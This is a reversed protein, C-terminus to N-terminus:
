HWLNGKLVIQQISSNISGPPDLYEPYFYLFCTSFVFNIPGEGRCWGDSNGAGAQWHPKRVPPRCGILGPIGTAQGSRSAAQLADGRNRGGGSFRGGHALVICRGDNGPLPAARCEGGAFNGAARLVMGAVVSDTLVALIGYVGAVGIFYPMLMMTVERHSFHALGFLFGTMLVAPAASYPREMPKQM